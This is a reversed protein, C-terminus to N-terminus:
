IPRSACYVMRWSEQSVPSMRVGCVRAQSRDSCKWWGVGGLVLAIIIWGRCRGPGSPLCPTPHRLGRRQHAARVIAEVTNGQQTFKALSISDFHQRYKLLTQPLNALRGHEALRLFLDHHQNTACAENYGGIEMVANRRMMVAPHVIPWGKRLLILTSRSM